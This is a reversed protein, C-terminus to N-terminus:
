LSRWVTAGAQDRFAAYDALCQQGQCLAPASPTLDATRKLWLAPNM